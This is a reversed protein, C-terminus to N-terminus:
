AVHQLPLEFWSARFRLAHVGTRSARDSRLTGGRRRPTILTERLPAAADRPLDHLGHDLLGLQRWARAHDTDAELWRILCARHEDSADGSDLLVQWAIAEDLVRDSVPRDDTSRASVNSPM